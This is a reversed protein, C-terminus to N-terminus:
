SAPEGSPGHAGCAAAGANAVKANGAADSGALDELRGPRIGFFEPTWEHSSIQGDKLELIKTPGTTTVEDLGDAGHVV